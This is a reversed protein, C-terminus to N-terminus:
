SENSVKQTFNWVTSGMKFALSLVFFPRKKPTYEYLLHLLKKSKLSERINKIDGSLSACKKVYKSALPLVQFIFGLQLDLASKRQKKSCIQYKHLSTSTSRYYKSYDSYLFGKAVYLFDSSTFCIKFYHSQYYSFLDFVITANIHIRNSLIYDFECSRLM